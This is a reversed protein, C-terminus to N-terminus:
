ACNLRGLQGDLEMWHDLEKNLHLVCSFLVCMQAVADPRETSGIQRSTNVSPFM